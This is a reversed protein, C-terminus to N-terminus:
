QDSWLGLLRLIRFTTDFNPTSHGSYWHAVTVYKLGLAEAILSKTPYRRELLTLLTRLDTNM